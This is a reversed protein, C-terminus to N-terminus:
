KAPIPTVQVYVVQWRGDRRHFTDAFRFRETFPKGDESGRIAGDGGVIGADPGLPVYIRDVIVFPEFKTKPDTFSAIFEDRGTIKGSGRVFKFDKALFRELAARDHHLQADDFAQSAAKIETETSATTQATAPLALCAAAFAIAAKM